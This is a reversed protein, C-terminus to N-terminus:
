PPPLVGVAEYYRIAKPSVGTRQALERIQM